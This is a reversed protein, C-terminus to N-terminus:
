AFITGSFVGPKSQVSAREQERRKRNLAALNKHLDVLSVQTRSIAYQKTRMAAAMSTVVCPTECAVIQAVPSITPIGTMAIVPSINGLSPSLVQNLILQM